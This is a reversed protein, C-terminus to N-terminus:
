YGYGNTAIRILMGNQFSLVYLFDTPGFNYIWDIIKLNKFHAHQQKALSETSAVVSKCKQTPRGCVQLVKNESDGINILQNSCRLAFCSSCIFLGFIVLLVKSFYQQRIM